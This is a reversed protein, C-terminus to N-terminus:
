ERTTRGTAASCHRPEVHDRSHHRLADLDQAEKVRAVIEVDVWIGRVERRVEHNLGREDGVGHVAGREDLRCTGLALCRVRALLDPLAHVPGIAHWEHGRRIEHGGGLVVSPLEAVVHVRVSPDLRTWDVGVFFEGIDVCEARAGLGHGRGQRALEGGTCRDVRGRAVVMVDGLLGVKPLGRCAVIHRLVVCELSEELSVPLTHVHPDVIAFTVLASAAALCAAKPSNGGVHRCLLVPM